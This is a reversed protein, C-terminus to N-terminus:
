TPVGDVEVEAFFLVRLLRFLHDPKIENLDEVEGLATLSLSVYRNRDKSGEIVSQCVDRSIENMGEFIAIGVAKRAPDPTVTVPVEVIIEVTAEIEREVVVTVPVERTVEIESVVSREVEVTVPVERTVEVPVEITAPVEIVEAPQTCSALAVFASAAVGSVSLAFLMRISVSLRGM